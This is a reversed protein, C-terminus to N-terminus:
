LNNKREQIELTIHSVFQDFTMTNSEDSGYRRVAVEGNEMEKDGVVLMYPTKSMQAQRIKYGM